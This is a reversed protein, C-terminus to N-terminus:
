DKYRKERLVECQEKIEPDICHDLELDLEIEIVRELPRMTCYIGREYNNITQRSVEVRRALEAGSLGLLQRIGKNVENRKM